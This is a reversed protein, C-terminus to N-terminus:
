PLEFVTRAAPAPKPTPEQAALAAATCAIWTALGIELRTRAVGISPLSHM